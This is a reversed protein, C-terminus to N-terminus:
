TDLNYKWNIKFGKTASFLKMAKMILRECEENKSGDECERIKQKIIELEGVITNALNISSKNKYWMMLFKVYRFSEELNMEQISDSGPKNKQRSTIPNM